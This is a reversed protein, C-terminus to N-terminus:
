EQKSDQMYRIAMSALTEMGQRNPHTGDLSDYPTFCEYFDMIYCDNCMAHKRIIENYVEIHTGNYVLPFEFSPKGSMFTPCLTCCWIEALPYNNRIQFLMEAYATDFYDYGNSNPSYNQELVEVGYGWDNTGLYVIIVDPKREAMHLGNTREPSCASPFLYESGPLRTVRSGSWSNNVLLRGELSTITKGWWTDEMCFIGARKATEGQYFVSYGWPNYDQLTSISDGLISFYKNHYPSKRKKKFM